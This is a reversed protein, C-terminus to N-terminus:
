SWYFFCNAKSGDDNMHYLVGTKPHTWEVATIGEGSSEDDESDYSEFVMEDLIRQYSMDKAKAAAEKEHAADEEDTCFYDLLSKEAPEEEKEEEDSSMLDIVEASEDEMKTVAVTPVKVVTTAEDDGNQYSMEAILYASSTRKVNVAHIVMRNLKFDDTKLVWHCQEAKLFYMPVIAPNINSVQYIFETKSAQSQDTKTSM